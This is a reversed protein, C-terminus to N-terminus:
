ANTTKRLRDSQPHYSTSMQLKTGLIKFLGTWFESLFITHCDSVITKPLGYLKFIEDLFYKAVKPAPYPHKLAIFHTFKSLRDVIVLITDKGQSIPLREVFDM